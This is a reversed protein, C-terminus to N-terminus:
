CDDALIRQGGSFLLNEEAALRQAPQDKGPNTRGAICGKRCCGRQGSRGAVGSDGWIDVVNDNINRKTVDVCEIKVSPCKKLCGTCHRNVLWSIAGGNRGYQVISKLKDNFIWANTASDM